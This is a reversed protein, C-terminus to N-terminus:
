PHTKLMVDQEAFTQRRKLKRTINLAESLNETIFVSGDAAKRTSLPPFPATQAFVYVREEGFPDAAEFGTGIELWQDQQAASLQQNDTLLMLRKDAIQYMVRIYCSQNATVYFRIAEGARYHINLRGKNTKCNVTLAEGAPPLARPGSEAQANEPEPKAPESAQQKQPVTVPPPAAKTTKRQVTTADTGSSRPKVKPQESEPPAPETKAPTNPQTTPTDRAITQEASAAASDTKEGFWGAAYGIGGLLGLVVLVATAAKVWFPIGGPRNTRDLQNIIDLLAHNIQALERAEDEFELTGLRKQRTLNEFRASLLTAEHHLDTDMDATAPLLEDLVRETKGAALWQRFQATNMRLLRLSENGPLAFTRPLVPFVSTHADIPM